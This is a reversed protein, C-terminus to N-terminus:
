GNNLAELSRHFYRDTILECQLILSDKGANVRAQFSSGTTSCGLKTAGWTMTGMVLPPVPAAM